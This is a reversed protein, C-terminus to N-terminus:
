SLLEWLRSSQWRLIRVVTALALGIGTFLFAMGVFKLPELWLKIANITGLQRLLESGEVAPNLQAAISHNWYGYTLTATPISVILATLLLMMGMMM